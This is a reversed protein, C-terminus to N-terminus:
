VKKEVSVQLWCGLEAALWQLEPDHLNKLKYKCVGAWINLQPGVEVRDGDCDRRTHRPMLELRHPSGAGPPHTQRQVQEAAAGTSAAAALTPARLGYGRAEPAELCPDRSFTTRSGLIM